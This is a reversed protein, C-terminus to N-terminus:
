LLVEDELKELEKFKAEGFIGRLSLIKKKDKVIEKTNYRTIVVLIEKVLDEDVWDPVEIKITKM